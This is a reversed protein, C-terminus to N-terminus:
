KRVSNSITSAALCTGRVSDSLASHEQKSLLAATNNVGSGAGDQMVLVLLLVLM